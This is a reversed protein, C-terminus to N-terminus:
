MGQMIEYKLNAFLINSCNNRIKCNKSPLCYTAVIKCVLLIYAIHTILKQITTGCVNESIFVNEIIVMLKRM